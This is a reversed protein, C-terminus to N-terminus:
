IVPPDSARHSALNRELIAKIDRIGKRDIYVCKGRFTEELNIIAEFSKRRKRIDPQREVEKFNEYALLDAAQLPICHEWSMPTISSFRKRYLFTPDNLMADFAELLIQNYGEARDHIISVLEDREQALINKGIEIMLYKLLLVYAFQKPDDAVTPIEEVLEKLNLTYAICETVHADFVGILSKTFAIQEETTWNYFQNVRSSSDAAHYRSITQRHETELQANKQELCRQWDLEFWVWESYKAVVCSLTFFEGNGSEDVYAALVLFSGGDGCPKLPAWVESISVCQSKNWSV